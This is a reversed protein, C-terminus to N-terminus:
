ILNVVTKITWGSTPLTSSLVVNAGSLSATLAVAATTGIDTTTIDTFQISAGNWVSMVQGSRANSGSALTYQYFASTFSGTANTSITQTGSALSATNQNIFASQLIRFSGSVDLNYQPNPQNIGVFGNSSGSFTASGSNSFSGSGFILAGINIRNASSEAVGINTGIVINNQSGSIACNSKYGLTINTNGITNGRLANPGVATNNCGTTNNYLATTGIAANNCGSTNFRLACTGIAINTTGGNNYNLARQGIGINSAGNNVYLARYGLAINHSANGSRMAANGLAVNCGGTTNAFLAAVGLAVNYCGTTNNRLAWHGIANNFCGTTNYYMACYGIATNGRAFTNCRLARYGIAVNSAGTTNNRLARDGLAINNAGTTNSYLAYCGIAVNGAGTTNSYIAKNGIATNSGGTTNTNLTRYGITVNHCGTTNSIQSYQGIATNNRGTTNSQLAYRGIATNGPGSTNSKLAYKGIATNSAGSTNARLTGQGIATNSFGYRNVSLSGSGIAVNAEGFGLNVCTLPSLAITPGISVNTAVNGGGRGIFLGNITGNSGSTSISGTVGLSGTIQASGTFPFASIGGVVGLALSATGQLSGTFGAATLQGFVCARTTSSNGIVTTNSGLGIANAGIIIENVDGNASPKTNTGIVISSSLSTLNTNTSNLRAADPGFVINCNGNINYQLARYGIATNTAGVTNSQLASNGIATNHNATSTNYLSRRGISVNYCGTTICYGSRWGIVTNFCGTTNRRLSLYGIATNFCGTTNAVLAYTGVATNCRGTTNARLTGSGVAVNFYGTTNAQLACYGIATNSGAYTNSRLANYGIATNRQGTSTRLANSGIAVLKSQYVNASLAYEGIATNKIGIKNCRLASHGIATNGGVVNAGTYIPSPACTSQGSYNGIFVNRGTTTWGPSNINNYDPYGTNGICVSNYASGISSGALKGIAINHTLISSLNTTGVAGYGAQNGIFVNDTPTINNALRAGAKYGIAVNNCFGSGSQLTQRGIAINSNGTINANLSCQGIAVSSTVNGGGRGIFLGNITGNSGSTSISGTVGLSGTIQASGTIAHNDTTANGITVGMGTVIFKASSGSTVTFQTPSVSATVSGTAIQSLNLGIVGSAPVTSAFSSSLAYSASVAQLVYSATTALSPTGNVWTGSNYVLAQGNSPTTITVDGLDDLTQAVAGGSNSGGAINRFIGANIISNNTTDTLNNTQGKLVLYGIFILSHATFEGETFSDTALYQLANIKTTYTNQGYYVVVRGTVPNAFVRQIQWDGSAMTNLVGTGDDWYDPDVTSYFAGGNNDLRVGSGSRYARAISSTAFANGHYHSPSNPDQPYFGGLTYAVGSGVGFGLTGPHASISFGDIKLPGFARIFASQQNDGDYTTQVNSGIGTITAYNPHTARGLPIAQEYQTQDFFGTQQHITGAADVYLYTNQSSTLYTASASYNPWTVYTFQPSIEESFSANPNLIVGSGSSVYITAGSASIIGGYLLGSSIGGELWKFKVLNGDQRYYLDYGQATNSASTFLFSATLNTSGPDQAPDLRLRGGLSLNASADISGSIVISGSLNTTGLLNNNGVQTTSGSINFSGTVIVNQNLPNVYSATSSFSASAGVTIIQNAISGSQRLFLKGDAVNIALEGPELSATTPINGSILNRKHLIKDPM